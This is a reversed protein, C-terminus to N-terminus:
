DAGYFKFNFFFPFFSFVLENRAHIYMSTIYLHNPALFIFKCCRCKFVYTSFSPSLGGRVFMALRGPGTQHPSVSRATGFTETLLTFLENAELLYFSFLVFFILKKQYSFFNLAVCIFLIIFVFCFFLRIHFKTMKVLIYIYIHIDQQLASFEYLYNKKLRNFKDANLRRLTIKMSTRFAKSITSISKSIYIKKFILRNVSFIRNINCNINRASFTKYQIRVSFTYSTLREGM